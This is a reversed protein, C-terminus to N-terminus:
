GSSIEGFVLAKAIAENVTRAGLKKRAERLHMEVTVRAVAWPTRWRTRGNEQGSSFETKGVDRNNHNRVQRSM